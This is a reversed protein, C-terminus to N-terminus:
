KNISWICKDGKKGNNIIHGEKKLNDLDWGLNILGHIFDVQKPNSKPLYGAEIADNIVGSVIEFKASKGLEDIKLYTLKKVLPHKM